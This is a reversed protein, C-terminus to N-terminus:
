GGIKNALEETVLMYMGEDAEVLKLLTDNISFYLNDLNIVVVLEDVLNLLTM